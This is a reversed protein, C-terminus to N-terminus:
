YFPPYGYPYAHSYYPYWPNYHYPNFYFSSYYFPDYYFPDYYSAHRYRNDRRAPWIHLAEVSIVPFTYNFDGIPTTKLQSVRGIITVERLRTDAPQDAAIFQLPDLFGEVVAFFRGPSHAQPRPRTDTSRLPQAVIELWTQQARNDVSVVHGGWRIRKAQHRAIDSQVATLSPPNDLPLDLQSPMSTCATATLLLALAFVSNRILM